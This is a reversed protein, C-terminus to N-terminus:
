RPVLGPLMIRWPGCLTWWDILDECTKIQLGSIVTVQFGAWLAPDEMARLTELLAAPSRPQQMEDTRPRKNDGAHCMLAKSRRM